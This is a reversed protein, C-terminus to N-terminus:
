ITVAENNVLTFFAEHLHKSETQDLIESLTGQFALHGEHIIGIRDCLREVESLNHTSFIVARGEVKAQHHIFKTIQEASMIDLGTTPEDLVIVSPKHIVSRAIAVRQKQGTSLTSCLQDKFEEIQFLDILEEIRQAIEKKPIGYLKGFFELQEKATLRDYLKMEGTLFGLHKRASISEAIMDVGNVFVEGENPKLLGALMSLTTTKGAGNVGLLGYIEGAELSLSLSKIIEKTGFSKHIHNLELLNSM